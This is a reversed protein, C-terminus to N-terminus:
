YKKINAIFRDTVYQIASELETLYSDFQEWTVPVGSVTTFTNDTDINEDAVPWNNKKDKIGATQLYQMLLERQDYRNVGEQLVLIESYGVGGLLSDDLGCLWEPSVDMYQALKELRLRPIPLQNKEAHYKQVTRINCLLVESLKRDTCDKGMERLIQKAKQFNVLDIFYEIEANQPMERRKAM